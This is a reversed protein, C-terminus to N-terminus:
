PMLLYSLSTGKTLENLVVGHLRIYSHIYLDVCKKGEASAPPSHEAERGLHDVGPYLARPVWQIPPKTPGLAPRSCMSVCTILCIVVQPVLYIHRQHRLIPWSRKIKCKEYNVIIPRQIIYATLYPKGGITCNTFIIKTDKVAITPNLKSSNLHPPSCSGRPAQSGNLMPKLVSALLLSLPDWFWDSRHLSCFYKKGRSPISYRKWPLGAWLGDRHRTILRISWSCVCVYTQLIFFRYIV